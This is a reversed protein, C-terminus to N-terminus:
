NGIVEWPPSPVGIRGQQADAPALLLAALFLLRGLTDMALASSLDADLQPHSRGSALTPNLCPLHPRPFFPASFRGGAAQGGTGAQSPRLGCLGQLASDSAPKINIQVTGGGRM